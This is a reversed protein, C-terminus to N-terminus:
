DGFKQAYKFLGRANAFEPDEAMQGNPFIDAIGTFLASGGGVFLVTDIDSATGLKREVERAIKTQQEQVAQHVLDAIEQQKGWLKIKGTRVARDLLALPYDDRTNFRARVLESLTTYVDLVGINETGSRRPDFSAGDIILAIDTTRGGVDVVAVKEVPVDREELQDDLFYDVFASLAQCGVQVSKIEALPEDSVGNRVGKLLNARKSEIKRENKKGSSFFDEVPLGTWLSVPKGGYGANMLAHNVLVRNITSTHFGDFQTNEAEVEDSVTFEEGEETHYSGIGGAGNLSMLAYRGSRASSRMMARTTTGDPMQGWLKTQAYGDDIAVLLNGNVLRPQNTSVDLESM